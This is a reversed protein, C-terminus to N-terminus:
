PLVVAITSGCLCLRLELTEGEGDQLGCYDLKGWDDRTYERGCACRKYVDAGRLLVDTDIPM